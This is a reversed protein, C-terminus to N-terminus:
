PPSGKCYKMDTRHVKPDAKQFEATQLCRLPRSSNDMPAYSSRTTHPSQNVLLKVSM